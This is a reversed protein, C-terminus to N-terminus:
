QNHFFKQLQDKRMYKELELDIENSELEKSM